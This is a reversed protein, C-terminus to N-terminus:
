PGGTGAPSTADADGGTGGGSSMVGRHGRAGVEGVAGDGAVEVVAGDGAGNAAEGVAAPARGPLGRQLVEAVDLVQVQGAALAGEQVKQAVADELMTMCFPCATSILDPETALAEEIREINVRKGIREEMWMRAGGAGCCFGNSRCRQMETPHIGPVADVVRRPASYVENHRGLYCPDHYTVRADLQDTAVLRGEDILHALLQSHHIVEFQGGLDPYENRLTNFCHPCWAVIRTAGVSRMTEVNSAAMMQFLHDMGLRRAPDGTCTEASGLVAYPVGARGLLEAVTRTIRKARDDVSGACGVWFLYEIGDPLASGPTARVPQPDLGRMWDERQQAGIGWPNGSNEINRLMAGAEHPFSSEMMAKYRRMEVIMDVHQIDVPCEEVCAGCTTCSWLVDADIVAQAPAEGPADGVLKKSLIDAAQEETQKGLLYPGKAYLHDRLDMVLLKPNLPKGTHWAPCQSQCRGCETCSYMDLLYPWRFDEVAGVGLVTEETMTELDIPLHPVAGLAKPQRSFLEKPFISLVHLHKSNLTFVLFWGVIALHVTAMGATTAELALPTMGELFDAVWRSLFAAQLHRNAEGGIAWRSAHILLLTYTVGFEGMLVWYGQGLNSGAFRSRRGLRRPHQALRIVLFGVIGVMALLIFTDQFFVIVDLLTRDSGPLALRGAVPIKFDPDFIEGFVEIITAQVVLFSWFVWAHLVGPLSWRLLKQQGLVKTFQYKLNGRVYAWTARDPDPQARRILGYLFMIRRGAIAATVGVVAIGGVIRVVALIQEPQM